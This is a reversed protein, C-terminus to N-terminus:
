RPQLEMYMACFWHSGSTTTAYSINDLNNSFRLANAYANVSLSKNLLIDTRLMFEARSSKSGNSSANYLGLNTKDKLEM